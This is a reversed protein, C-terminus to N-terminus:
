HTSNFNMIINTVITKLQNVTTNFKCNYTPDCINLLKIYLPRTFKHNLFFDEIKKEDDLLSFLGALYTHHKYKWIKALQRQEIICRTLYASEDIKPSRPHRYPKRFGFNSYIQTHVEPRLKSIIAYIQDYDLKNFFRVGLPSSPDFDKLHCFIVHRNYRKDNKMKLGCNYCSVLEVITYNKGKVDEDDEDDEEYEEDCEDDEDMIDEYDEDDNIKEDDIIDYDNNNHKINDNELFNQSELVFYAYNIACNHTHKDYHARTHANYEYGLRYNCGGMDDKDICYFDENCIICKYPSVHFAQNLVEVLNKYYVSSKIKELKINTINPNLKGKGSQNQFEVCPRRKSQIELNELQLELTKLEEM